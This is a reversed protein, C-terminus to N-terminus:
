STVAPLTNRGTDTIQLAARAATGQDALLGAHLMQGIM